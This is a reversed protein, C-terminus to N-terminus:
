FSVSVFKMETYADIGYKSGERGLGSEKVGGFPARATSVSDSNIAVMGAQLQEAVRIARGLDRTYAYAALGFRTRNALQLGEAESAFPYVAVVPGFIEEDHAAMSPDMHTLITPAYFFGKLNPLTLPKGGYAIKAGKSTADEVLGMVKAKARAHILPGVTALPDFGSGVKLRAVRERLLSVFKDHIPQQVYVRNPCVCTQGSNRFKAAVLGEVAADLDADDFVLFPANGGLELSVRKVTASSAKLLLKGVATSGTFSLKAVLPHTCFVEGVEKTFSATTLVNVVGEPFGCRRTLEGFALATLPTESASVTLSAQHRRYLRKLPTLMELAGDPKGAALARSGGEENDHGSPFTSWPTVIGAVGVPHRMVLYRTSPLGSPIVDGYVRVGEEAFWEVFSAAYQVEAVSKGNELTIITALDDENNLMLNHLKLLLDHRARATRESWESDSFATHAARIAANADNPGLDPVSAIPLGEAPDIVDFSSASAVSGWAGIFPAPRFLTPDKLTSKNCTTNTM